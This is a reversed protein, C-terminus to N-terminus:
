NSRQRGGSFANFMTPPYYGAGYGGYQGYNNFIYVNQANPFM